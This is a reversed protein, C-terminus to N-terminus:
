DVVSIRTFNRGGRTKSPTLMIKLGNTRLDSLLEEDAVVDTMIDTLATGGQYYGIPQKKENCVIVVCFKVTKDEEEYEVIDADTIIIPKGALQETTLKEGKCLPSLQTKQEVLAALKSKVTNAM